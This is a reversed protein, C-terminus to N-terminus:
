SSDQDIDMEEESAPEDMHSFIWDCARELNQDCKRLAREAQKDTFGMSVIMMVHEPNASPKNSQQQSPVAKKVKLPVQILPNEINEYFWMCATDASNNGTNYVAHKAQIEPIGMM